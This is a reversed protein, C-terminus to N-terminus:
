WKSCTTASQWCNWRLCQLNPRALSSPECGLGVRGAQAADPDEEQDHRAQAQEPPAPIARRQPSRKRPLDSQGAVRRGGARAWEGDVTRYRTRVTMPRSVNATFGPISLCGESGVQTGEQSVIEPNILIHPQAEGEGGSCDIVTLRKLIGVQPAALGVGRAQYMTEFMDTVLSQLDESGFEEEAVPECVEELVPTATNSSRACWPRSAVAVRPKM